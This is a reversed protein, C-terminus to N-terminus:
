LRLSEWIAAEDVCAYLPHEQAIVQAPKMNLMELFSVTNRIQEATCSLLTADRELVKHRVTASAEFKDQAGYVILM